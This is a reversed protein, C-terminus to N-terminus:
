WSIRGERSIDGKGATMGVPISACGLPLPRGQTPKAFVVELRYRGAWGAGSRICNQIFRKSRALLTKKNALSGEEVTVQDTLLGVALSVTLALM